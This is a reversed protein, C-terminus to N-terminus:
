VKREPLAPLGFSPRVDVGNHGALIITRFPDYPYTVALQKALTLQEIATLMTPPKWGTPFAARGSGVINTSVVPLGPSPLVPKHWTTYYSM